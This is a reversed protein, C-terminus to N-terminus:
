TQSSKGTEDTDTRRTPTSEATITEAMNDITALHIPYSKRDTDRRTAEVGIGHAVVDTNDGGDM